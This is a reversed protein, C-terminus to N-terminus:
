LLMVAAQGHGQHRTSLPPHSVQLLVFTPRPWILVNMVGILTGECSPNNKNEKEKEEEEERVEEEGEEEM